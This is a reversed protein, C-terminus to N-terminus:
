KPMATKNEPTEEEEWYLFRYCEPCQHMQESTRIDIIMQPRLAQFCGCCVGDKTGVVALGDCRSAVKEYNSVWRPDLSRVVDLRQVQFKELDKKVRVAESEKKAKYEQYKKEEEKFEIEIGPLTKEKEELIEMIELERDEFSSIKEKIADIEHLIASYEKNTKVAPLKMKAKAMHDLEGQVDLELQKNDSQLKKIEQNAAERKQTKEEMGSQAAELQGPIRALGEEGEHIELDIEQLKVLQGIKYKLAVPSDEPNQANQTM